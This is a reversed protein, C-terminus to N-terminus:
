SVTTLKLNYSIETLSIAASNEESLFFASLITIEKAHLIINDVSESVEVSVQALISVNSGFNGLSKHTQKSLLSNFPNLPM